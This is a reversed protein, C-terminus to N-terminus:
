FEMRRRKSSSEGEQVVSPSDQAMRKGSSKGDEYDANPNVTRLAERMEAWFEGM